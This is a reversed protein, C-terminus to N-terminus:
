SKFTASVAKIAEALAPLNVEGADQQPEDNPKIIRKAAKHSPAHIHGSEMTSIVIYFTNLDSLAEAALEIERAPEVVRPKRASM